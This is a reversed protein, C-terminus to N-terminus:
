IPTTTAGAGRFGPCMAAASSLRACDFSLQWLPDSRVGSKRDLIFLILLLGHSTRIAANRSIAAVIKKMKTSAIQQPDM